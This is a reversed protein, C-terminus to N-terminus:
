DTGVGRFKKNIIIMIMEEDLNYSNNYQLFFNILFTENGVM